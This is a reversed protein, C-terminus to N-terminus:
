PVFVKEGNWFKLCSIFNARSKEKCTLQSWVGSRCFFFLLFICCNCTISFISFVLSQKQLICLMTIGTHSYALIHIGQSIAESPFFCMEQTWLSAKKKQLQCKYAAITYSTFFGFMRRISCQSINIITEKIYCVAFHTVYYMCSIPFM